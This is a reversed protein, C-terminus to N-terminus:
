AHVIPCRCLSTSGGKKISSVMSKQFLLQGNTNNFFYYLYALIYTM